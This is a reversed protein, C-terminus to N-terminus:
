VWGDTVAYTVDFCDNDNTFDAASLGMETKGADTRSVSQTGGFVTDAAIDYLEDETSIDYGAVTKEESDYTYTASEGVVTVTVPRKTVALTGPFWEVTYNATVDEAGSRIVRVGTIVNPVIGDGNAGDQPTKVVSAEDFTVELADGTQLTDLNTATWTRNSHAEGDYVWSESAATVSIATASKTITVTRGPTVTVTYNALSTGAGPAYDFTAPTQGAETRSAFNSYVFSEGAVLGDAAIDAATLALPAGDYPKSINAATLTVPRPTVTLTGAVKTVAYNSGLTNASWRIASVANPSTGVDKQAGDCEYEAGEGSVFGVATVSGVMFPAGDYVRSGSGATLTLAKPAITWEVEHTGAFNGQGALTMRYAGANKQINGSVTYDLSLGKYTVSSLTQVQELGTYTLAPGFCDGM